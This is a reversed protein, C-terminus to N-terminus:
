FFEPLGVIASFKKPDFKPARSARRQSGMDPKDGGKETKRSFQGSQAESPQANDLLVPANLPTLIIM